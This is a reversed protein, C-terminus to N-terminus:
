SSILAALLDGHGVLRGARDRTEDRMEDYWGVLFGARNRGEVRDIRHERWGILRGARDRLDQRM